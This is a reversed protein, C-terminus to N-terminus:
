AVSIIHINQLELETDWLVSFFIFIDRAGEINLIEVM